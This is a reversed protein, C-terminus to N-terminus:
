SSFHLMLVFALSLLVKVYLPQPLPQFEKEALWKAVWHRIGAKKEKEKEKEKGDKSVVAGDVESITCVM